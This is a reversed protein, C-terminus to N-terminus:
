VRECWLVDYYSRVIIVDVEPSESSEEEWLVAFFQQFIIGFRIRGFVALLVYWRIFLHRTEIVRISPANILRILPRLIITWLPSENPLMNMERRSHFSYCVLM